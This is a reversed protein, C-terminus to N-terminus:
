LWRIAPIMKFWQLPATNTILKVIRDLICMARTQSPGGTCHHLWRGFCVPLETDCEKGHRRFCVVDSFQLVPCFSKVQKNGFVQRQKRHIKALTCCRSTKPYGVHIHIVYPKQSFLISVTCYILSSWNKGSFAAQLIKDQLHDIGPFMLGM